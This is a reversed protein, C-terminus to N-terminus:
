EDRLPMRRAVIAVSVMAALFGFGFAVCTGVIVFDVGYSANASPLPPSHRWLLAATTLYALAFVAGGRFTSSALEDPRSVHERPLRFFLSALSGVLLGALPVMLAMALMVLGLLSAWWGALLYQSGQGMGAIFFPWAIALAGIQFLLSPLLRPIM